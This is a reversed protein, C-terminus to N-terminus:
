KVNEVAGLMKLLRSFLLDEYQEMVSIQKELLEDNEEHIYLEAKMRRIILERFEGLARQKYNM